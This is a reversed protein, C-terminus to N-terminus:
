KQPELPHNRDFGMLYYDIYRQPVGEAQQEQIFEGRTTPMGGILVPENLYQEVITQRKM